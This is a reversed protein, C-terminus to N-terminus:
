EWRVAEAPILGSARRAPYLAATACLLIAAVGVALFDTWRLDVPIAPIIYVTPDLRFLHYRQQIQCLFFGLLSGLGSGVVGVIIGELLYIFVVSRKTSGMAMLVGIERTKEIVSMTLSGLLNFTAVGIILSLIIYAMWREIRMISYLDKHLDYWTSISFAAPLKKELGHKVDDSEDVDNLRVEIGQYGNPINFLSRASAFSVYAYLGDYERNHSEYIGVVHFRKMIPQAVQTVAAEIDSPSVLMVTDGVLAGLRDSLTMGLVIGGAVESDQFALKGLVIKEKLGSVSGIREEDVGKIFIAKNETRSVVVGRSSIYPSFAKVRQDKKLISEVEQFDKESGLTAKEIRLHPDFGVLLSTVLGSFGNFVSLVVILAAVGVTVGLISISTIVTIFGSKKKSLLYRKAIYAEFSM